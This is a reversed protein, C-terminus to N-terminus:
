FLALTARSSNATPNPSLRRGRQLPEQGAVILPATAGAPRHAPWLRGCCVRRASSSRRDRRWRRRDAAARGDDGPSRVPSLARASAEDLQLDVNFSFLPMPTSTTSARCRRRRRPVARARFGAGALRTCFMMAALHGGASHGGVVVRATDAGHRTARAPSGRWRGGADRRRHRRRDRRPVPRLQRQGRRHRPRRVTRRRLAFDAKDLARWYGGHLFVFTGRAPGARCSCISRRREGRATACTAASTSARTLVAASRRAYEAFWHPHDPCAARNNYGREVFEAAFPIVRAAAAIVISLTGVGDVGGDLRDGPGVAAVGAPTGTFVLDGPLLEYYQSLFALTNPVDWILDALDGHQRTTGNVDLWIRGKAPHGVAAVPHIPGIPAAEAFSKGIDWPRKKERMDIQLDRRTM